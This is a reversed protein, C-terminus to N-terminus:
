LLETREGAARQSAGGFYDEITGSSKRNRAKTRDLKLRKRQTNREQAADHPQNAEHKDSESGTEMEGTISEPRTTNHNHQLVVSKLYEADDVNFEAGNILIHNYRFAANMGQARAKKVFPLLTKREHQVERSFQETIYVDTDHLRSKNKIVTNRTDENLFKVLLMNSNAGMRQVETIQNNEISLDLREKIFKIVDNHADNSNIPLGRFVLNKRRVDRMLQKISTDQSKIIEKMSHNENKLVNIETKLSNIQRNMDNVSKTLEQIRDNTSVVNHSLMNIAETLKDLKDTDM